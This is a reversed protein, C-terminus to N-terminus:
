TNDNRYVDPSPRHFNLGNIDWHMVPIHMTTDFAADFVNGPTATDIYTGSVELIYNGPNLTDAFGYAPNTGLNFVVTNILTTDNISNGGNVVCTLLTDEGCDIVISDTVLTVYMSDPQELGPNPTQWSLPGEGY